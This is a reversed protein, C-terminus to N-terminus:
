QPPILPNARGVAVPGQAVSSSVYQRLSQFLQSNAVDQPNLTIESIPTISVLNAPPVVIVSQPPAFFIYYIAVVIIAFFVMWGAISMINTRGKEEEIIIAM